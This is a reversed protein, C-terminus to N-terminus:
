LASRLIEGVAARDLPPRGRVRGQDVGYNRMVTDAILDLTEESVGLGKLRTAVGLSMVFEEYLQIGEMAVAEPSRGATEVGFVRAGFQALKEPRRRAVYRMWAPGVVALGAAHPVDHIASLGHEIHHVPFGGGCGSQPLGNLAVISAWQLHSRAALDDLKVMVRPAQEVVTSVIGEVIRDQLPTDDVANFYGETAHVITDVAGYATHEAPVSLTLAPDVISTKPYLAPSSIACKERLDTNTLVANGNMESATAALTPIMLLPLAKQPPVYPQQGHNTMDWLDGTFFVGAAVGKATDMASGGGLGVVLDVGKERCLRVGEAVLSLRPNPEVGALVFVELGAAKMLGSVKDLLGSKGASRRGTVILARRGLKAAEEGAKDVGGPGFVIKTPNCFVFPVM